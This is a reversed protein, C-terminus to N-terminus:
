MKKPPPAAAATPKAAAAPAFPPVDGWGAEAMQKFRWKGDVLTLASMSQWKGKLKGMAMSNTEVSVALTDSLFTATHKNSMKMDKPMNQMFPAFMAIWQERSVSATKATGKGDDTLMVVPYDCLDAAANVDGKKLAEEFAKYLDDVGKKDQKTVPRSMPGTKSMDPVGAPPAGAPAAAAPAAPAAPAAAPAKDAAFAPAGLAVAVMVCITKTM